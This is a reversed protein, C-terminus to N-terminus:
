EPIPTSMVGSLTDNAAKGMHGMAVHTYWETTEMQSHGLYSQIVRLNVDNGMLHTAISHRFLHHNVKKTIGAQKCAKALAKRIDHIPKEEEPEEEDGTKGRQRSSFVYEGVKELSQLSTKLWENMPLIKQEGGKQIVRVAGNSFDIDTWRLYRAESLRLGLTYLCLIFARHFPTVASLIKVIEGPSLVFPKPRSHPLTEIHIPKLELARERRCWKLFGSFYSLEKMITRNSIKGKYVPIKKGEVDKRHTKFALEGTRIKKYINIHHVNLDTLREKGLLRSINAHYVTSIDRFTTKARYQKYWDLYESFLDDVKQSEISKQIPTKEDNAAQRLEFEIAKAEDRDTIAEPLPHRIRKGNRGDPWYDVIFSFEAAGCATCINEIEPIRRDCGRCKVILAM